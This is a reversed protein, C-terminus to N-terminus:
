AAKKAWPPTAAGPAAAAAAAPANAPMAPRGAQAGFAPAGQLAGQLARYGSVENSDDYQGSKDERIKVKIQVPKNHLEATDNFRAVGISECLARLQENAIREAEPSGPHRVNLRAWVKRNVYGESLVNFTLKLAAGGPTSKLSVIESDIVQANYWGPPLLEYNRDSKPATETNFSFQAM